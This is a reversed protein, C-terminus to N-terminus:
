RSLTISVVILGGINKGLSYGSIPMEEVITDTNIWRNPIWDFHKHVSVVGGDGSVSKLVVILRIYGDAIPAQYSTISSLPITLIKAGPSIPMSPTAM